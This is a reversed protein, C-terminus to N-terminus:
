IEPRKPHVPLGPDLPGEYLNEFACGCDPCIYEAAMEGPDYFPSDGPWVAAIIVPPGFTGDPSDCATCESGPLEHWPRPLSELFEKRWRAM